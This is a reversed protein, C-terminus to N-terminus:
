KLLAAMARAFQADWKSLAATAWATHRDQMQLDAKAWGSHSTWEPHASQARRSHVPGSDPPSIATEFAGKAPAPAYGRIEIRPPSAPKL